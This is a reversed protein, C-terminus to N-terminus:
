CGSWSILGLRATDSILSIDSSGLSGYALSRLTASGATWPALAASPSDAPEIVETGVVRGTKKEYTLTCASHAHWRRGVERVDMGLARCAPAGPGTKSWSLGFVRSSWSRVPGIRVSAGASNAGAVRGSMSPEAGLTSGPRLCGVLEACGGAAFVGPVRTRLTGDVLIGGSRGPPADLPVARPVRRPVFAFADCPFVEGGALVAEARTLGAVRDVKGPAVAIGRELAADSVVELVPPSPESPQWCSVILSAKAGSTSFREAVQLGRAGEGSILVRDASGFASGLEAYRGPSDLVFSGPRRVGQVVAPEFRSGAALVISDARLVPGGATVAEGRRVAVVETEFISDLPEAPPLPLAAAASRTGPPALLDPWSGWPPDPKALRDVVAVDIGRRSCEEAAAVGATGAGVVLVRAVPVSSAM